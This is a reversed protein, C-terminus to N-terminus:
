KGWLGERQPNLTMLGDCNLCCPIIERLSQVSIFDQIEIPKQTSDPQSVAVLRDIGYERAARLASLSDDVMLTTNCDFLELRNFSPWFYKDEKPMSLEHSSIISDFFRGLQTKGLKIELAKPHANTLLVLRKGAKRVATLFNETHPFISILHSTELKLREVDLDLEISWFDLCYWEIKGEMAKFRPQLLAKASELDLRNQQAYRLPILEQWFHNDFYLDLLTGDLDMLVTCIDDWVIM